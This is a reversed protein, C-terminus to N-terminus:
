EYIIDCGLGHMEGGLIVLKGNHIIAKYYIKGLPGETGLKHGMQTGKRLFFMDNLTSNEGYMGGFFLLLGGYLIDSHSCYIEFGYKYRGVPKKKM